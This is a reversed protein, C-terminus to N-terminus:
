RTDGEAIVFGTGAPRDGTDSARPGVILTEGSASQIMVVEGARTLVLDDASPAVSSPERWVWLTLVVPRYKLTGAPSKLRVDGTNTVAITFTATGGSVIQQNKPTKSIAISALSPADGAGPAATVEQSDSPAAAPDPVPGAAPAASLPVVIYSGSWTGGAALTGPAWKVQSGTVAGGKTASVFDAGAPLRNAIVVSSALVASPNRVTIDYRLQSNALSSQSLTV